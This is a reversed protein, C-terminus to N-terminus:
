KKRKGHKSDDDFDNFKIGNSSSKQGTIDSSASPSRLVIPNPGQGAGPSSNQKSLSGSPSSASLQNFNGAVQADILMRARMICDAQAPSVQLHFAEITRNFTVIDRALEISISSNKTADRCSRVLEYSAQIGQIDQIIQEPHSESIITGYQAWAEAILDVKRSRLANELKKKAVRYDSSAFKFTSQVRALLSAPKSNNAIPFSPQPQAVPTAVGNQIGEGAELKDPLQLGKLYDHWQELAEYSLGCQTLLVDLRKWRQIDLVNINCLLTDLFVQRFYKQGEQITSQVFSEQTNSLVLSLSPFLVLEHQHRQYLEAGQEAIIYLLQVLNNQIKPVAQMQKLIVELDGSKNACSVFAKALKKIFETNGPLRLNFLAIALFKLRNPTADPSVFYSDITMWWQIRSQIGTDLLSLPYKQTLFAFFGNSKVQELSDENLESVYTNIYDKLISSQPYLSLYVEGYHELFDIQENLTLSAAQLLREVIQSSLPPQPQSPQLWMYLLNMKEMALETQGSAALTNARQALGSFLMLATESWYFYPFYHQNSGFKRFFERREELSLHATSLLKELLRPDTASTFITCLLKFRGPYGLQVLQIYWEIVKNALQPTQKFVQLYSKGYRELIYASEYGDFPTNNLLDLTTKEHLPTNLLVFLRELKQPLPLLKRYLAIMARIQDPESLYHSGYQIFFTNLQDDTRYIRPLISELTAVKSKLMLDVLNKKRPYEYAVLIDIVEIGAKPNTALLTDLFIEVLNLYADTGVYGNNTLTVVLNKTDTWLQPNRVTQALLNEIFQSRVTYKNEILRIAFSTAITFNTEQLLQGLLNNIETSYNQELRQAIQPTLSADNILREVAMINWQGHRQRLNLKLFEGLRNWPISLLPRIASDCEPGPPFVDDWKKLLWSFIEWQTTLFAITNRNLTTQDFLDKWIKLSNQPLLCCDMLPLLLMVAETKKQREIDPTGSQGSVPQKEVGVSKMAKVIDPIARDALMFLAQALTKQNKKTPANAGPKDRRNAGQLFSRGIQAPESAIVGSTDDISYQQSSSLAANYEQQALNRLVLLRPYLQNTSWLRNAAASEIIRKRFKQNSLRDLYLGPDALAKDIDAEGISDTNAIENYYLRLFTDVDLTQSKEALELLDKLQDTNNTILCETAYVAFDAALPKHTIQPHGELPSCEGTYCNVALNERYFQPSFVQAAETGKGPTPIWSTGVIETAAKTVDPEYTSFTLGTVLQRPLWLSLSAILSAIMAMNDAPAAIYLPHKNKRTLYAEIVFPLYQQVQAYNPQFNSTSQLTNLPILDLKNSRRDQDKDNTKWIDSGWLWIADSTSFKQTLNGFAIVHVFFNGLRGVGDEGVYKKHVLIYESDKRIFALCVPAMDPTIAFPDADPPLVYRMYRDMSKVRESYIESLGQSAARIRFGMHVTSLGVDSWTYWLQEASGNDMTSMRDRGREASGNMEAIIASIM